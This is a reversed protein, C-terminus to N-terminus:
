STAPAKEIERRQTVSLFLKRTVNKVWRWHIWFHVVAASIFVVGAWTHILDWTTRSFVFGSDWGPNLGGRSGGAPVFLFYLGSVATLIFSAAV